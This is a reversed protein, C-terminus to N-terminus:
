FFFSVRALLAGVRNTVEDIRMKGMSALSEVDGARNFIAVSIFSTTYRNTFHINNLPPTKTSIESVLERLAEEVRMEFGSQLWSPRSGEAPAEDGVEIAPISPVEEQVELALNEEPAEDHLTPSCDTVLVGTLTSPSLPSTRRM